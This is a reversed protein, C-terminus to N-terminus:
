PQLILHHDNVYANSSGYSGSLGFLHYNDNSRHPKIRFEVTKASSSLENTLNSNWKTKIFYGNTSSDGKLALGSKEYSFTKYTSKDTTSGGYEKVNLITSPVGYCSMLAKLGRETGKTKLLYPANHYLRKWIEKTIDEKPISGANSATILSQSIPTDYFISGEKGEGLIYEILNSNEFQDFANLGLSKLSHYVLDKSIGRTHHTDKTETIHKIHTWIQDYHHGLM